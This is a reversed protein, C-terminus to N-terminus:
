AKMHPECLEWIEKFRTSAFEQDKAAYSLMAALDFKGAKKDKEAQKALEEAILALLESIADFRMNTVRKALLLLDGEFGIVKTPHRPAIQEEPVRSWYLSDMIKNFDEEEEAHTDCYPHDGAFQTHRVWTAPKEEGEPCKICYLDENQTQM